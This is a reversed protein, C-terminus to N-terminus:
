ESHDVFILKDTDFGASRAKAILRDLVPKELVQSRSLIWLWDMDSGCILAYTYNERDLEIINYAGYFPGFFSVKLRGISPQDVFYAKGEAEKWVNRRSDYGKNLVLIGGDARPSYTASIKELGREFRNDLRAIEYWTGLYRKADFREVPQVQPPIGVCGGLPVFWLCLLVRLVRSKLAIFM